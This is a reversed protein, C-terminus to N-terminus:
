STSGSGSPGDTGSDLLERIRRALEDLSFPKQIFAATRDLVGRRVVADDTYGSMHLVLADPQILALRDATERGSIGPMVLDSLLLDITGDAPNALELAEEGGSAVLVRYGQAELLRDLIGRVQQDDEVLLITEGASQGASPPALARTDATGQTALPLYVKFTTGEDVESYVWVSGGSQKVIGHVTALGLGTGEPNTTFFPEFIQAATESNMGRGTDTVALLAFRGPPLDVAHDSGVEATGVEITLRGGKPMADRANVALNVIVQELQSRDADVLVDEALALVELDIDDGILRALLKETEAVVENLDLLEPQLVQQRSFALLQRTLAAARDSGAVIEVIEASADEGREISMIALEAYGRIALLINNFDHAVGGALRGVAELRHAQRLQGELSDRKAEGSKRETIDMAVGLARVPNGAQDVVTHGRSLMWGEAGDPRRFRYEADYDEGREMAGGISKEVYARDDPHVWALFAEYSAAASSDVGMLERLSDSWVQEHTALDMDWAGTRAARQAMELREESRVLAKEVDKHARLQTLEEGAQKGRRLAVVWVFVGLLMVFSIPRDVADHVSKPGFLEAGGAAVVLTMTGGVLLRQAWLHSWSM